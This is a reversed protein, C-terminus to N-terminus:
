PNLKNLKPINLVSINQGLWRLKLGRLKLQKTPNENLVMNARGSSHHVGWSLMPILVHPIKSRKQQAVNFTKGM